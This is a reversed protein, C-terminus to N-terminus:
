VGESREPARRPDPRDPRRNQAQACRFGDSRRKGALSVSNSMARGNGNSRDSSCYTQEIVERFRQLEKELAFEPAVERARRSMRAVREPDRALEQVIAAVSAPDDPDAVVGCGTRRVLRAADSEKHALVLVRGGAALIS